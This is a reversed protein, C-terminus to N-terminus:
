EIVTSANTDYNYAVNEAAGCINFSKKFKKRLKDIRDLFGDHGFAVTGKAM